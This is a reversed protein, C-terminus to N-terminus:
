QLQGYTTLDGDKWGCGPAGPMCAPAGIPQTNCADLQAPAVLTLVAQGVLDTVGGNGTAHACNTILGGM